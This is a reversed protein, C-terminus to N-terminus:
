CCPRRRPTRSCLARAARPQGLGGVASRRPLAVLPHERRPSCASSAASCWSSATRRRPQRAARPRRAAPRHGARAAPIIDVILQGTAEWRRACSSAGRPSAAGRERGLLQQSWSASPRPSPPTPSTASSSTSSAALFFGRERCSPSTCSTSWRRSASARTARAGAGARAAGADAVREFAELLAALEASAATSSRRSRSASPSTTSASRSAARHAGSGRAPERCRQSIRRRARAASQYREEAVKALLKLVIASLVRRCRRCAARAPPAPAQAMHAHFWELADRRRSPCRARHADRLLTVGLSYLDTRYDVARNM